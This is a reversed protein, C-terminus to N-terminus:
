PRSVTVFYGMGAVEPLVHSESVPISLQRSSMSLGTGTYKWSQFARLLSRHACLGRREQGKKKSTGEVERLGRTVGTLYPDRPNCSYRDGPNCSDVAALAAPEKLGLLLIFIKIRGERWLGEWQSSSESCRHSVAHGEVVM